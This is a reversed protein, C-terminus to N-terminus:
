GNAKFINVLSILDYGIKKLAPNLFFYEIAAAGILATGVAIITALAPSEGRQQKQKYVAHGALAPLGVLLGMHVAFAVLAGAWYIVGGVKKIGGVPNLEESGGGVDWDGAVATGYLLFWAYVAKLLRNMDEESLTKGM